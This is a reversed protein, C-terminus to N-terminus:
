REDARIRASRPLVHKALWENSVRLLPPWEIAVPDAAGPNRPWVRKKLAEPATKAVVERFASYLPVGEASDHRDNTFIRYLPM